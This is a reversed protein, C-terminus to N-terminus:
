RREHVVAGGKIVFRINRTATIEAAPNGAVVVLDALRGVEIVGLDRRRLLEAARGTASVIADLPSLGAAVLRELEQHLSVGPIVFPNPTDSGAVVKGGARHFALIFAARAAVVERARAFYADDAQRFRFDDRWNLWSRVEAAPVLALNPYRANGITPLNSINESVLLTPVISTGKDVFFRILLEQDEASLPFRIGSAHEIAQVGIEVADRASVTGVHGTVPVGRAEDVTSLGLSGRWEAGWVPPVGDLLPRM